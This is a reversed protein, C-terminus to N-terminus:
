TFDFSHFDLVMRMYYDCSMDNSVVKMTILSKKPLRTVLSVFTPAYDQLVGTHVVCVRNCFAKKAEIDLNKFM